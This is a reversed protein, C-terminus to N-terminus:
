VLKISFTVIERTDTKNRIRVCLDGGVIPIEYTVANQSYTTTYLDLGDNSAIFNRFGPSEMSGHYSQLVDVDYNDYSFDAKYITIIAKFYNRADITRSYDTSAHANDTHDGFILREGPEIWNSRQHYTTNGGIKAIINNGGDLNVPQATGDDINRGMMKLGVEAMIVVGRRKSYYVRGM